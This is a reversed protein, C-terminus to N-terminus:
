DRGAEPGADMLTAAELPLPGAIEEDTLYCAPDSAWADGTAAEARVRCNGGCVGLFRCAACRGTVYRAKDKLRALLPNSLDTWIRGFPRDTVNGLSVHRWFQDPHVSGDWGVCGIGVGSASGRNTALLRWVEAARPSGERLMRLYLYPGDAHNDVTLVETRRGQAHLEATRDIIRDVVSRAAARDLDDRMLAAGRGAYVLHYFCLRPIDEDDALDFVAPIEAANRRTITFRLGVKVGAQRCRRVGALAAEFAGAAGRFADHIAATGDLSVGVYGVGAERLRFAVAQDILTGNTSLAARMGLGVARAALRFIDPRLLPEGGSLLVVPVGFAALDELLAYGQDTTLENGRADASPAELGRHTAIQLRSASYCHACNLNCAATCNWVVVPKRDAPRQSRHGPSQGGAGGYRLGDCPGAAGCYLRSIGIM